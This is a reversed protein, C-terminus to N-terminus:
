QGRALRFGTDVTRKRMSVIPGQKSFSENISPKFGSTGGHLTYNAESIESTKCWEWVNGYIDYLGFGNCPYTKVDFVLNSDHNKMTGNHLFEGNHKRQDPATINENIKGAKYSYEWEDVTPLRLELGPKIENLKKCFQIARQWRLTEIPKNKGIYKSPNDDMFLEWLEQTCVTDAIWFGNSVLINDRKRGDFIDSDTETSEDKFKGPKVWRFCQRVGKFTFAMWLGYEDQGWDSAWPEPFIVPMSSIPKNQKLASNM